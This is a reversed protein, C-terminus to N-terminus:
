ADLHAQRLLSVFAHAQPPVAWGVERLGVLSRAAVAAIDGKGEDVLRGLVRWAAVWRAETPTRRVVSVMAGLVAWVQDGRLAGPMLEPCELVDEPDPLQLDAAFGLLSRAAGEGVCGAVLLQQVEEGADSADAAGALRTAQFWSRPSPWPGGQADLDAPIARLPGGRRIFDATISRWMAESAGLRNPDIGSMISRTTAWGAVMGAAWELPDAEFWVHCFRNALPAALPMGDAALAPPNAAAVIPVEDPIRLDGVYRELVVRLMAAQVAPPACTLEDLFLVTSPDLVLRRAWAPPLLELTGEPSRAPIGAFDAAERVSGIVTECARGLACAVGQILQTKGEGPTGIMLIPVGVTMAISLAQEVVSVSATPISPPRASGLTM